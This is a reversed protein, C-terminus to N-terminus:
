RGTGGRWHGGGPHSQPGVGGGYPVIPILPTAPVPPAPLAPRAQPQPLRYVTGSDREGFAKNAQNRQITDFDYVTGTTGRSDPVFTIGGFDYATERTGQGGQLISVGSAWVAGNGLLMTVTVAWGAAMSTRM